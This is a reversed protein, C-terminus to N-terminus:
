GVEGFLQDRGELLFINASTKPDNLESSDPYMLGSFWAISRLWMLSDM